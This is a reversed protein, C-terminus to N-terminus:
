ETAFFNQSLFVDENGDGNFDAAVVAFVPAFQVEPPLEVAEFHEGRNLLVTTALTTGEAVKARQRAEGLVAELTAESYARHTAFRGAIFPMSPALADRERRPAVANLEPEYEAEVVDVIGQGGLDGYYVQVPHERSAQYPSNLGWNAVIIDLRGD